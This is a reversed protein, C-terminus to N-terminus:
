IECLYPKDEQLTEPPKWECDQVSKESNLLVLVCVAPRVAIM